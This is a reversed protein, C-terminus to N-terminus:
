KLRILPYKIDTIIKSVLFPQFSVIVEMFHKINTTIASTNGYVHGIYKASSALISNVIYQSLFLQKLPEDKGLYFNIWSYLIWNGKSFKMECSIDCTAEM